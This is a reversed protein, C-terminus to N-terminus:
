RKRREVMYIAASAVAAVGLFWALLTTWEGGSAVTGGGPLVQLILPVARIVGPGAASVTVPYTGALANSAVIFTLTTVGTALFQATTLSVGVGAPLGSVSLVVPSSYNGSLTVTVTASGLSGAQIPLTTASAAIQLGLVELQFAVSRTATGNYGHIALPYVGPPASASVALTLTAGGSPAVFTPSFTGTVWSPERSLSLNVIPGSYGNLGLVTLDVTANGGPATTARSPSALLVFEPQPITTFYATLTVGPVCTITHDEAGGDSWSSFYYQYSGLLQPSTANVWVTTSNTCWFSFPATYAAGNADVQLGTPATDVTVKYTLEGTLDSLKAIFADVLIQTTYNINPTTDFAGQTVPFDMSSTEGAVHIRGIPDVAIGMAADGGTGGLYTSALLTSGAANLESLFADSYGATGRYTPQIAANTTPFDSSWTAGAVFANGSGDVALSLGTSEGTGGIFTAYNLSTGTANLQAVYVYGGRTPSPFSTNWAGATVPFDTSNTAGTVIADGAADLAIANVYDYGSGGLLTSYILGSGTPNLKTIFGDLATPTSRIAGATTPFYPFSTHGAAYANGGADVAVGHAEGDAIFTSYSLTTGTSSLKSVFVARSQFSRNYAGTTTPFDSSLTWGAVYTNGTGDLAISDATDWASGGLFTSYVLGNGADNLEAVFADSGGRYTRDYAGATTPFDSSSTNGTVYANGASDVAIAYGKDYGAGGLFTAYVLGTGSPNFKAVFADACATPACGGAYTRNFAGPTTPFDPGGAAGTVYTAGSSDSTVSGVADIGTSGLYTAYILPDIRLSRAPDVGFCRYGVHQADRLVFGCAVARGAQDAVPASDLLNGAATQIVLDGATNIGLAEMGEIRIAIDAVDAGPALSFAYKTGSASASYVLDIGDYLRPYVVERYSPVDTHARGYADGPLFNMTYPLSGKGVPEVAYANEFAARVLVGQPSMAGQAAVLLIEGTAFGIQLSNTAFYFRVSPNALQGVNATFGLGWPTAGREVPAMGPLTMRAPTTAISEFGQSATQAGILLLLMALVVSGARQAM